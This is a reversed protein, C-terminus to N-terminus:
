NIRVHMKIMMFRNQSSIEEEIQDRRRPLGSQRRKDKYDKDSGLDKPEDKASANGFLLKDELLWKRRVLGRGEESDQNAKTDEHSQKPRLQDERERQRWSEDRHRISHHNDVKDRARSQDERRKHDLGGDMERKRRSTDERARYGHLIDDKDIHERKRLEEDKRRRVHLDDMNVHRGMLVDDRGRQRLGGDKDSCCKWDGDDVRRKLHLREDRDIRESERFKSRHRSGIEEIRERRRLEEDKARRIHTGDDRRQSFGVSSGREKPREFSESKARTYHASSSDWDRHPHPHYLDERGKMVMHNRSIEKGDQGYEDRRRHSYEDDDDHRKREGMRRSGADQVEEDGSDHQRHFDM